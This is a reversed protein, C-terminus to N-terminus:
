SRTKAWAVVNKLQDQWYYGPALNPEIVDEAIAAKLHPRAAEYNPVHLRQIMELVEEKPLREDHLMELMLMLGDPGTLMTLPEDSVIYGHRKSESYQCGKKHVLRLGKASGKGPAASTLWEVWGDDVSKIKKGCNDCKWM